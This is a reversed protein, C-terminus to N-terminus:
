LGLFPAYYFLELAAAEFWIWASLLRLGPADGRRQAAAAAAVGALVLLLGVAHAIVSPRLVLWLDRTDVGRATGSGFTQVAFISGGPRREVFLWGGDRHSAVRPWIQFHPRRASPVDSPHRDPTPAGVIQEGTWYFLVPKGAVWAHLGDKLRDRGWSGHSHSESRQIDHTAPGVPIELLPGDSLAAITHEIRWGRLGADSTLAGYTHIENESPGPWFLRLWTVGFTLAVAFAAIAQAHTGTVVRTPAGAIARVLMGLLGLIFRGGLYIGLAVVLFAAGGDSDGGCGEGAHPDVPMDVSLPREVVFAIQPSLVVLAIAGLLFALGPRKGTKAAADPVPQRGRLEAVVAALCAAVVLAVSVVAIM